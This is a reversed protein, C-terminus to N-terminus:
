FELTTTQVCHPIKLMKFNLKSFDYQLLNDVVYKNSGTHDESYYSDEYLYVVDGVSYVFTLLDGTLPKQSAMINNGSKKIIIKQNFDFENDDEGEEGDGMLGSLLGVADDDLEFSITQTFNEGLHEIIGVAQNLESENEKKDYDKTTCASFLFVCPLLLLAIILNKIKGM